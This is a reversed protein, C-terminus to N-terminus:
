KAGSKEGKIQEMIVEIAKELQFDKDPQNPDNEVYYDPKVGLGELNTGDPLYWGTSPVNLTSGDPLKIHDTGIVGGGTPVGVLKGIGLYKVAAPFIEADSFSFENILVVLPKGWRLSPQYRPKQGRPVYKAYVKKTLIDLLQPHINGGPNYRVDLILGKKDQKLFKVIAKKFRTLEKQNMARIHYYAVQGDTLSDVIASNKAEWDEWVFTRTTDTPLTKITLEREDITEIKVSDRNLVEKYLNFHPVTTKHGNIKVIIDGPRLGASDAPSDKFVKTVKLGNEVKQVKFGVFGKIRMTDKPPQIGMHSARLEGVMFLITKRLESYTEIYNLLPEYYKKVAEWDVGNMTSDYFRTKLTTWAMDFIRKFDKHRDVMEMATFNVTEPLIIEKPGKIMKIDDKFTYVIYDASWQPSRGEALQIHHVGNNDMVYIYTKRESSVEYAVLKGNPSVAPVQKYGPGETIRIPKGAPKGDKFAIKYIEGNGSRQSDFFIWKGDPSFCGDDDAKENKTIQFVKKDKLRVVFIDKNGKRTSTFVIYKGDPSWNEFFDDAKNKTIQEPKGGEISVVFIDNNGNRDSFYAIKKGDPSFRPWQDHYPDNTIKRAKGGSSPIIWIDGRMSFAIYRGDPSLAPNEAKDKFERVFKEPLKDDTQIVINLPEVKGDALDLKFLKLKHEFVAYEGDKSVSLHLADGRELHTIREPKGDQYKYIQFGDKDERIFYLNGKGDVAPDRDTGNYHTIRIFKGEKLHYIEGNTSGKYGKRFYSVGDKVFYISGDNAFVGSHSDFNTVRVPIGGDKHIKFIEYFMGDRYSYFLITDGRWDTPIDTSVDFTVQHPQGGKFPVVWIDYNGKRRSAFAIFKGDPSWVPRTDVSDHLTVRWSSEELTDYVWIDGRFTFAIKQGDPSISPYFLGLTSSKPNQTISLLFLLLYKIM